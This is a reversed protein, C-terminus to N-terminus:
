GSDSADEPPVYPAADMGYTADSSCNTMMLAVATGTAVAFLLAGRSMRPATIQSDGVIAGHAGGCFPCREDSDRIHRNCEACLFLKM